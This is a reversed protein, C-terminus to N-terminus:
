RYKQTSDIVDSVSHGRTFVFKNLPVRQSATYDTLYNNHLRMTLYSM